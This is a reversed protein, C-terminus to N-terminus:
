CRWRWIPTIPRSRSISGTRCERERSLACSWEGEDYAIRRFQWQPLELDILALAADTWAGFQDPTGAARNKAKDRSPFAPLRVSSRGCSEDTLVNADRLREGFERPEPHESLLSM